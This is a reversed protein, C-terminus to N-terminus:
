ILYPRGPDPVSNSLLMPDAGINREGRYPRLCNFCRLQEEGPILAHMPPTGSPCKCVELQWPEMVRLVPSEFCPGEYSNAMSSEKRARKTMMKEAALSPSAPPLALPPPHQPPPPNSQMQPLLEFGAPAVDLANDYWGLDGSFILDPFNSLDESDAVTSAEDFACNPTGDFYKGTTYDFNDPRATFTGLQTKEYSCLVKRVQFYYMDRATPYPLKHGQRAQWFSHCGLCFERNSYKYNSSRTKTNAGCVGSRELCDQSAWPKTCNPCGYCQCM